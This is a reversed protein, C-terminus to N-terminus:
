LDKLAKLADKADSKASKNQRKARKEKKSRNAGTEQLKAAKEKRAKFKDVVGASDLINSKGTYFPHSASSVEVKLVMYTVGDEERTEESKLTSLTKFEEGCSTDVIITPYVEPKTIETTKAM